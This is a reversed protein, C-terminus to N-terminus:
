GLGSGIELKLQAALMVGGLVTAPDAAALKPQKKIESVVARVFAQSSMAGALQKEIEPMQREVLDQMTPNSKVAVAAKSLDSM